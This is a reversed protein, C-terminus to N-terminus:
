SIDSGGEEAFGLGLVEPNQEKRRSDLSFIQM